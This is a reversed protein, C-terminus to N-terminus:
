KGRGLRAYLELTAATMAAISYRPLVHARAREILAARAQPALGLAERIAAALAEGDGPPVRWGTREANAVEPPALVTEPFAGVDSVIVPCGAAEAEVAALGFTEPVLSPVVAVDALRLAAPIDDCHGVLRVRSELGAAAIERKLEAAYGRRTQDDGALIIVLDDIDALDRAAAIAVLQGKVPSLRAPVLVVRAEPAIGWAERLKHIRTDDIAAPDFRKEDIGGPIVVIRDRAAPFREGIVSATFRSNAIVADGKAMVSNYFAKLRNQQKYAGHFSTVFPTKTRRAALFASWAPARSHAHIVDVGEATIIRALRKGHALITVPNKSAAKLPIWIGGRAKLEDVLRGAEGAVLARGGAAALAAALEVVIREAGGADLRPVVQLVTPPDGLDKEARSLTPDVTM